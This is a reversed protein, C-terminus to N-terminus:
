CCSACDTGTAWSRLMKASASPSRCVTPSPWSKAAEFSEHLLQALRVPKRELKVLGTHAKTLLTLADVIKSLRQAEDLECELWEVQEPSLAKEEQLMTELQIRM